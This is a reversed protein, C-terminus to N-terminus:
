ESDGHQRALHQVIALGLGLGNPSRRRAAEGRYFRELLRAQAARPHGHRHRRRCCRGMYQRADPTNRRVRWAPQLRYRQRGPQARSLHAAHHQRSRCDLCRWEPARVQQRQAASHSQEVVEELLPGLVVAEFDSIKAERALLLLQEVLLELRQVSPQLVAAMHRCDELAAAPDSTTVDLNTQLVALPTRLEHSVDAVFQQQEQVSLELRDLLANVAAVLNALEDQPGSLPLRERLTTARIRGTVVSADHLRRLLRKTLLSSGVGGIVVALVLAAISVLWLLRRTAAAMDRVAVAAPLRSTAAPVPVPVAPPPKAGNAAPGVKALPTAPAVVAPSSFPLPVVSGAHDLFYGYATNFFLTLGLTILFLWAASWLTLRARLTLGTRRWRALRNGM